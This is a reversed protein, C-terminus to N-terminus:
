PRAACMRRLDLEHYLLGNEDHVLVCHFDNSEVLACARAIAEEETEFQEAHLQAPPETSHAPRVIRGTTYSVAFPM